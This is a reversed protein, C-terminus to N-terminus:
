AGIQNIENLWNKLDNDFYLKDGKSIIYEMIENQEQESLNLISNGFVKFYKSGNKYRVLVIYGIGRQYFEKMEIKKDKM